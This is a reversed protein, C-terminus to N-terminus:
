SWSAIYQLGKVQPKWEQVSWNGPLGRDKAALEFHCLAIGMDILQIRIKGLMRNYLKNEKLFLHILGENDQVLRWPQKNSASPGLRVAEFADRYEGTEKEDLPELASGKFFLDSWPKRRNSGAGFRLVREAASKELAPYGVPTIAPLLEHKALNITQAFAARRFTGGLWCTGLGRRTLNLIIKELNYGLDVLAMSQDSIAGLIFLHAGKIVGYTGLSKLEDADLNQLDLVIFRVKHGFPGAKSFEGALKEIMKRLDSGIEKEAYSRVSSREQIVEFWKDMM